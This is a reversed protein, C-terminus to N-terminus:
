IHSLIEVQCNNYSVSGDEQELALIQYVHVTFTSALDFKLRSLIIKFIPCKRKLRQGPSLSEHKDCVQRM